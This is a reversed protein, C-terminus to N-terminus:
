AGARGCILHTPVAEGGPKVPRVRHVVVSEWDSAAAIEAWTEPQLPGGPALERIEGGTREAWGDPDAAALVLSGGSSVRRAAQQLLRVKDPLALRETVGSLIVAGFEPTGPRALFGLADEVVVDQGRAAAAWAMDGRPDVGLTAIGTVRLRELLSGDGCEAHCVTATVGAVADRLADLWTLLDLKPTWRALGALPAVGRRRAEELDRLRLDIYTAADRAARLFLEQQQTFEAASTRFQAIAQESEERAQLRLYRVVPGLWRSGARRVVRRTMSSTVAPLSSEAGSEGPEGTPGQQADGLRELQGFADEMRLLCDQFAWRASGQPARREFSQAIETFFSEPPVTSATIGRPSEERGGTGAPTPADRGAKM